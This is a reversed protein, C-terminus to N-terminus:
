TPGCTGSAVRRIPSSGGSRARLRPLVLKAFDPGPAESGSQESAAPDAAQEQELDRGGCAALALLLGLVLPRAAAM